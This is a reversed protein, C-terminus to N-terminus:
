GELAALSRALNARATAEYRDRFFDTGYIRPRDLFARLVKARGARFAEETVHGYEQRIAREYADFREAPEGLISLDIDVVYRGDNSAPSVVHRTDMILDRVIAIFSADEGMVALSRAALEASREENDSRTADYVADHYLLAADVARGETLREYVEDAKRLCDLVHALDHYHRRPTAYCGVLETLLSEHEGKPFVRHWRLRIEGHEDAPNRVVVGSTSSGGICRRRCM